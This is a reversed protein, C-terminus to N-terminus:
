LDRIKNFVYISNETKTNLLPKTKGWTERHYFALCCLNKKETNMLEIQKSLQVDRRWVTGKLSMEPNWSVNM